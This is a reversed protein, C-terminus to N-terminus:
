CIPTTDLLSTMQRDPRAGSLFDADHCAFLKTVCFSVCQHNHLFQASQSITSLPEVTLKSKCELLDFNFGAFSFRIHNFSPPHAWLCMTAHTSLKCTVILFGVVKKWVAASCNRSSCALCLQPAVIANPHHSTKHCHCVTTGHHM